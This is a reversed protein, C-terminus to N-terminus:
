GGHNVCVYIVRSSVATGKRWVGDRHRVDIAAALRLALSRVDSVLARGSRGAVALVVCIFSDLSAYQEGIAGASLGRSGRALHAGRVVLM